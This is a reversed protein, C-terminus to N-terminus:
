RVVVYLYYKSSEGMSSASGCNINDNRKDEMYKQNYIAELEDILDPYRSEALVYMEKYKSYAAFRKDVNCTEGIKFHKCGKIIINIRRTITSLVSTRDSKAFVKM